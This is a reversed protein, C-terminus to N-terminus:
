ENTASIKSRSHFELDKYDILQRFSPDQSKNSIKGSITIEKMM